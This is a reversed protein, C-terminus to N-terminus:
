KALGGPRYNSRSRLISILLLIAMLIMGWEPLTPIDGGSDEAVYIPNGELQVLVLNTLGNLPTTSTIQNNQANLSTLNAAYQLGTLDAIGRNSIDLTALRLMDGQTIASMLDRGLAENIAARLNQDPMDVRQDLTGTDTQMAAAFARLVVASTYVDSQWDGSPGQSGLLGILLNTATTSTLNDRLLALAAHAQVAVPSTSSVQSSLTSVAGAIPTGLTSDSARYPVLAQVVLATTLPDSADNNGVTWGKDNAGALQTQKLYGAASTYDGISGTLTAAELALATDVSSSLYFGSLGWGGNGPTTLSQTAELFNINETLTDGHPDLALIARAQHDVNIPNHNQLFTVGAYYAAGKQQYAALARLVESTVLFQEEYYFGWSGDSNQQSLLWQVANDAPAQYVSAAHVSFAIAAGLVAVIFRLM